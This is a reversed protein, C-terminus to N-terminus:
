SGVLGHLAATKSVAAYVTGGCRGASVHHKTRRRMTDSARGKQCAGHRCHTGGIGANEVRLACASFPFDYVILSRGEGGLGRGKLPPPALVSRLGLLPCRM